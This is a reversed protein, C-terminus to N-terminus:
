TPPRCIRFTGGPPWKGDSRRKLRSFLSAEEDATHKLGAMEFYRRARELLERQGLPGSHEAHRHTRKGGIVGTM